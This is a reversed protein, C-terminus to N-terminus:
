ELRKSKTRQYRVSIIKFISVEPKNVISANKRAQEAFKQVKQSSSRSLSPKTYGRDKKRRSSGSKISGTGGSLQFGNRRKTRKRPSYSRSYGSRGGRIRSQLSKSAPRQAALTAALAKPIGLDSAENIQDLQERSLKTRPAKNLPVSRLARKATKLANDALSALQGDSRGLGGRSIAKINKRNLEEFSEGFNLGNVASMFTKDFCDNRAICSCDDDPRRFRDLCIMQTGYSRKLRARIEPMCYQENNLNSPLSCFCNRETIANCDGKGPMQQIVRAVSNSAQKNKKSLVSNFGTLFGSATTKLIRGAWNWGVPPSVAISAVYCTTTAGWGISNTSNNKSKERYNRKIKHLNETQANDPTTEIGSLHKQFNQQQFGSITEVGGGIYGCVDVFEDDKEDKKEKDGDEGDKGESKPKEDAQRKEDKSKPKKEDKQQQSKDEGEKAKPEKKDSKGKTDKGKDDDGKESAEKMKSMIGKTSIFNTMTQYAKSAMQITGESMGLVEVEEGACLRSIDGKVATVDDKEFNQAECLKELQIKSFEENLANTQARDADSLDMDEAKRAFLTFSLTFILCTLLTKKIM